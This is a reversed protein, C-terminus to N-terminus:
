RSGAYRVARVVGSPNRGELAVNGASIGGALPQADLLRSGPSVRAAIQQYREWEISRNM